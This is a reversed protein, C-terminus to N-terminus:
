NKREMTITSEAIKIINIRYSQISSFPLCQRGLGSHSHCTPRKSASYDTDKVYFSAFIHKFLSESRHHTEVMIFDWQVKEFFINKERHIPFFFRRFNRIIM